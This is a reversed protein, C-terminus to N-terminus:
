LSFQLKVQTGRGSNAYQLSSGLNGAMAKVIRSGLGTGRPLGEGDWGVGDDEVALLATNGGDRRFGVRIQGTPKGYYAYKCANTVLENVIVGISVAKDTPVALHEVDLRIDFTGSAKMSVRLEEILGRLYEDIEVFRVDESTYLRRHIGAIASIRTQTEELANRAATDDIASAQMRVLAAVLALSNAVRHNVEGLLIEARDRAERVEREATAKERELRAQVLAQEVASALLELFEDAVTKPVYDAAGAKLANVAIRTDASGTVYVVPPALEWAGLRALVDMGTGTPLHHDLIVVDINGRMLRTLGEEGTTVHEVTYGRRGLVRQALRVLAPDDDIYLICIPKNPM